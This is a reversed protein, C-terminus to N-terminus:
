RVVHRLRLWINGTETDNGKRKLLVWSYAHNRAYDYREVNNPLDINL